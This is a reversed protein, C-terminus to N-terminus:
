FFISFHYGLIIYQMYIYYYIINVFPLPERFDKLFAFYSNANFKWFEGVYKFSAQYGEWIGGIFLNYKDDFTATFAWFIGLGIAFITASCLVILPWAIFCAWLLLTALVKLNPGYHTTVFVTYYTYFLDHPLMIFAIVFCSPVLIIISVPM